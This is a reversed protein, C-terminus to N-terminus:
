NFYDFFPYRSLLVLAKPIYIKKNAIPSIKNGGTANPNNSGHANNNQGAKQFIGNESISSMVNFQSGNM